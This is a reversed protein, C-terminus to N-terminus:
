RYQSVYRPPPSAAPTLGAERRTKESFLGDDEDEDALATSGYASVYRPRPEDAERPVFTFQREERDSDRGVLYGSYEELAGLGDGDEEVEHKRDNWEALILVGLIALAILMSLGYRALFDDM